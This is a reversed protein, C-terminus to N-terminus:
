LIEEEKSGTAVSWPCGDGDGWHKVIEHELRVVLYVEVVKGGEQM